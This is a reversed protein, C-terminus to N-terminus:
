LIKSCSSLRLALNGAILSIVPGEKSELLFNRLLVFECIYELLFGVGLFQVRSFGVAHIRNQYWSLNDNVCIM